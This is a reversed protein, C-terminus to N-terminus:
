VTAKIAFGLEVQLALPMQYLHITRLGLWGEAVRRNLLIRYSINVCCSFCVFMQLSLSSGILLWTNALNAARDQPSSSLPEGALDVNELGLM